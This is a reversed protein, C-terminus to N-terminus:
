LKGHKTGGKKFQSLRIKIQKKFEGFPIMQRICELATTCVLLDDLFGVVPALDPIVDFPNIFYFTAFALYLMKSKNSSKSILNLLANIKSVHVSSSNLSRRYKYGQKGKINRNLRYVKDVRYRSRAEKQM